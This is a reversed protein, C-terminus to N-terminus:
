DMVGWAAQLAEAVTVRFWERGPGDNVRSCRLRQHVAGEFKGCFPLTAAPQVYFPQSAQLQRCRADPDDSRGVKVIDDRHSTTAIYLHTM